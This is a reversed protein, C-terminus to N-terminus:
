MHALDASMRDYESLTVSLPLRMDGVEPFVKGLITQESGLKEALSSRLELPVLKLLGMRTLDNPHYRALCDDHLELPIFELVCTFVPDPITILKLVLKVDRETLNPVRMIRETLNSLGMIFDRNKKVRITYCVRLFHAILRNAYKKEVLLDEKDTTRMKEKGKTRKEPDPQPCPDHSTVTASAAGCRGGRNSKFPLAPRM